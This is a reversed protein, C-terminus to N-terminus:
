TKRPLAAGAVCSFTRSWTGPQRSATASVISRQIWVAWSSTSSSSSDISPRTSLSLSAFSSAPVSFRTSAPWADALQARLEDDDLLALVARHEEAFVLGVYQGAKGVSFTTSGVPAPSLKAPPM